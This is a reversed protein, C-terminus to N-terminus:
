GAKKARVKKVSKSIPAPPVGHVSAAIRSRHIDFIFYDGPAKLAISNMCVIAKELSSVTGLWIPQEGWIGQFLDYESEAM